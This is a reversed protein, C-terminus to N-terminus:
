KYRIDVAYGAQEIGKRWATFDAESMPSQPLAVAGPGKIRIVQVPWVKESTPPREAGVVVGGRQRTEWVFLTTESQDGMISQRM